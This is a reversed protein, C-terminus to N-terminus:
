SASYPPTASHMPGPSERLTKNRTAAPAIEQSSPRGNAIRRVKPMSCVNPKLRVLGPAKASSRSFLPTSDSAIPTGRSYPTIASIRCGPGQHTHAHSPRTSSISAIISTYGRQIAGSNLRKVGSSPGKRARM